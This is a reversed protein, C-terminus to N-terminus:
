EDWAYASGYGVWEVCGVGVEGEGAVYAAM